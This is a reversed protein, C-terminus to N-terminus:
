RDRHVRAASSSTTGPHTDTLSCSHEPETPLRNLNPGWNTSGIPIETGIGHDSTARTVDGAGIDRNM